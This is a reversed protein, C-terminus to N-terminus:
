GQRIGWTLLTENWRARQQTYNGQYFAASSSNGGGGGGGGGGRGWGGWGNGQGPAEQPANVYQPTWYLPGSLDPINFYDGNQWARVDINNYPGGGGTDTLPIQVDFPQRVASMGTRPFGKWNYYTYRNRLGPVIPQDTPLTQMPAGTFTARGPTPNGWVMFPSWPNNQQGVMNQTASFPNYPNNYGQNFASAINNFINAATQFPKWTERTANAGNPSENRTKNNTRFPNYPEYMPFRQSRQRYERDIVTSPM